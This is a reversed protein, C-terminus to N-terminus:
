CRRELEYSHRCLLIRSSAGLITYTHKSDLLFRLDAKRDVHLIATHSGVSSPTTLSECPWRFEANFTPHSQNLSVSLYCNSIRPPGRFYLRTSPTSTSLCLQTTPDTQIYCPRGRGATQAPRRCFFVSSPSPSHLKVFATMAVPFSPSSCHHAAQLILM